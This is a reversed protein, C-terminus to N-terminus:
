RRSEAPVTEQMKVTESFVFKM